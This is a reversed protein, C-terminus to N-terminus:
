RYLSFRKRLLYIFIPAGIIATIAGVPLEAPAIIYRALTDALMLFSAGIFFSSPVIIRYDQGFLMRSVHPVILGVFGIIGSVSVIAGVLLSSLVYSSNKIFKTNVGLQKASESGLSLVNYKQSNFVLITVIVLTIVLIYILNENRAFSLSGILWLIATRLSNDLVTTMVLIGSAFFAGIMVGSLLLVDPELEGFRRGVLFVIIIVILAGSFAFIQTSLFSLGLLFSLVAGFAGGSSIGLIYPEALPNLLIAQFVAGAVSLGGGVAVAFLIRPGRIGFIIKSATSNNETGFLIKIINQFSINVSGFSLSVIAIIFTIVVLVFLYGAYKRTNIREVREM